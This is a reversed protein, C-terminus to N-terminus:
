LWVLYPFCIVWGLKGASRPVLLMAMYTLVIPLLAQLVGSGFPYYVLLFGTVLSYIHRVVQWFLLLWPFISLL